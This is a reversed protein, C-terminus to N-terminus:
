REKRKGENQELRFGIPKTKPPKAILNNLAIIIDSARRDNKEIYFQTNHFVPL